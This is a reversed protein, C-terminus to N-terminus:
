DQRYAEALIEVTHRVPIDSGEAALGGEIWAHCGPNGTVVLDPKVQRLTDVKRKQLQAAMEPQLFNYIGASGCCWDPDAFPVLEVGRIASLLERPQNRIGQAHALHCADHYAIRLPMERAPPRLGLSSLFESIDQTRRGFSEARERRGADGPFLEGYEKMSSGCGASNTIVADVGAEEMVPMLREARQRAEDLFGNHMHFAGCCGAQRPVVVDCGNAALVEITARNIRQFLVQMVCGALLAVRARREGRAPTFEPLPEIRPSPHEPLPLSPAHPGFLFRNVMGVPGGGAGFVRGTLSAAWIAPAMRAPSTLLDLLVRRKRKEAAPRPHTKEIEGRLATLMEGYHVASPCVTECARCGLCTDVDRVVTENLDIRGETLGRMLYIRGRPSFNENGTLEYTPCVSLCLGCHVCDLLLEPDLGPILRGPQAEVDTM